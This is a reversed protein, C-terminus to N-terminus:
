AVRNRPEGAAFAEINGILQDALAQMAEGSSWAVHPTLIFTGAALRDAAEVLTEKKQLHLMAEAMEVGIYGGGVIVVEDHGSM